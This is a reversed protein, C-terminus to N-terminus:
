KPNNIVISLVYIAEDTNFQALKIPNFFSRDIFKDIVIM